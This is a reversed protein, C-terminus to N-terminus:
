GGARGGPQTTRNLLDELKWMANIARSSDFNRGTCGVELIYNLLEAQSDILALCRPLDTRSHAIFQADAAREFQGRVDAEPPGVVDLGFGAVDDSFESAGMRHEVSWPGATAKDCRERMAVLEAATPLDPHM